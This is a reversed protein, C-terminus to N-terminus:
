AQQNTCEKEKEEGQIKGIIRNYLEWALGAVSKPSYQEAVAALKKADFEDLRKYVSYIADAMDAPDKPNCLAGCEPTLYEEPGRCRTSVVPVGSALAEIAPICFTEYESTVLLLDSQKLLEALEPKTKRGAFDFCDAMGAQEIMRKYEGQLFGDGAVTCKINEIRGSQKLLKIAEAADQIRKGQRLASIIAINLGEGRQKKSPTYNETDVVNPLVDCCVGQEAKIEEAMFRSVATISTHHLAYSGYPGEKGSLFRKYYSAHETIVVPVGLDEGLRVAAYGAPVTVMAHIIDPRGIEAQYKKYGARVAKLYRKQQWSFSIPATNLMRVGYAKFGRHSVVFEKPSKIFGIPNKLRAREVVLMSVDFRGDAALAECYEIHYQGMLADEGNPYWSPLVLVKIKEM